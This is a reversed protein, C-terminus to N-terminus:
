CPDLVKTHTHIHSLSLSLSLPHCLCITSVNDLRFSVLLACVVHMISPTLCSGGHSAPLSSYHWYSWLHRLWVHSPWHLVLLFHPLHCHVFLAYSLQLHGRVMPSLWQPCYHYHCPPSLYESANTNFLFLSITRKHHEKANSNQLWCMVARKLRSSSCMAQLGTLLKTSGDEKFFFFNFFFIM